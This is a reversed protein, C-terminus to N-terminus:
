GFSSNFASRINHDKYNTKWDSLIQEINKEREGYKRWFADASDFFCFGFTLKAAMYYFDILDYRSIFRFHSKIHQICM